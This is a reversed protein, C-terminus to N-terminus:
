GDYSSPIGSFTDAGSQRLKELAIQARKSVHHDSDDVFNSIMNIAVPDGLIGLAQIITYRLSVYSTSELVYLLPLVAKKSGIRELAGVITLQVLCNCTALNSLLADVADEQYRELAYVAIEAVLPDESCVAGAMIQFHVPSQCESLLQAANRRATPNSDSLASCLAYVGDTGASKIIQRVFQMTADDQYQLLAVVSRIEEDM